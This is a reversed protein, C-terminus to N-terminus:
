VNPKAFKKVTTLLTDLDIPKRIYGQTQKVASAVAANGAASTIVVPINALTSGSKKLEELFEWGNMVPLMMDLLILCPQQYEHLLQLAIKGNTATLVKYKEAELVQTVVELISEDDEVILITDCSQNM